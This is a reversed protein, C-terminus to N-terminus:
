SSGGDDEHQRAPDTPRPYFREVTLLKDLSCKPCARQGAPRMVRCRQCTVYDDSADHKSM